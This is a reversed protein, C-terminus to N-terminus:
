AFVYQLLLVTRGNGKKIKKEEEEKRRTDDRGTSERERKRIKYFSQIKNVDGVGEMENGVERM